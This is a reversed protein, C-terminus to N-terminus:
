AQGPQRPLRLGSIRACASSPTPSSTRPYPAREWGTAMVRSGVREQRRDSRSLTMAPLEGSGVAVNRPLIGRAPGQFSFDEEGLLPITVGPEPQAECSSGTWVKNQHGKSSSSFNAKSHAREVSWEQYLLAQKGHYLCLLIGDYDKVFNMNINADSFPM